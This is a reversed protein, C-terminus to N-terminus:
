AVLPGRKLSSLYMSAFHNLFRDERGFMDSPRIIIADPFVTRVEKEGM